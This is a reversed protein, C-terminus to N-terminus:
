QSKGNRELMTLCSDRRNVKLKNNELTLEMKFTFQEERERRVIRVETEKERLSEQLAKNERELNEIRTQL